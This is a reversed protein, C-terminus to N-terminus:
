FNSGYMDETAPPPENAEPPDSFASTEANFRVMATRNSPGHRNKAVIIEAEGRAQDMEARWNAEDEVTGNTPEQRGLYYEHRYILWVAGADQEIAGSDRLDALTPRKDDRSEVGRNIQVLLVVPVDLQKALQKLSTTMHEIQQVKSYVKPDSARILGLYDIILVALRGRRHLVRARAAIMEVTLSSAEDIHIPLDGIRPGALVFREFDDAELRGRRAKDGSVGAATAIFRNALFHSQMELSNIVVEHGARAMNLAISGALATKGMATRGAIVTVEGRTLGGTLRDLSILGTSVGASRGDSELAAEANAIATEVALSVHEAGGETGAGIAEIDALIDAATDTVDGGARAAEILRHAADIAARARAAQVITEAYHVANLVTPASAVLEGLYQPRAIATLSALLEGQLTVPDATSGREVHEAIKSYILGHIPDHFFEPRLISAVRDYARNNALLAGLLGQEAENNHPPAEAPETRGLEHIEANM